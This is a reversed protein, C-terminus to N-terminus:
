MTYGCSEISLHFRSRVYHRQEEVLFFLGDFARWHAWCVVVVVVVVAWLVFM